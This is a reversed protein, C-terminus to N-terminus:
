RPERIDSLLRSAPVSPRPPLPRLLGSVIGALLLHWDMWSALVHRVDRKRWVQVASMLAVGGLGLAAAGTRADGPLAALGAGAGLWGAGVVLPHALLRWVSASGAHGGHLKLLLGAARARGSHWRQMLVRTTSHPHGDHLVAPIALRELRWGARRLRVGLDAEEYAALRMDAAHGGASAIASRRYLGGGELWPRLGATRGLGNRSRIRDTANRIERDFVLGGVGALDPHRQLHALAACLFGPVLEMDGDMLMVWQGRSWAYGLEVGCGCGRDEERLLQVVRVPARQSWWVAREVTADSSLSDAVVIELPLPWVEARAAWASEIARDIREAENYAKIVVSVGDIM